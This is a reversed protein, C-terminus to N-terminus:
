IKQLAEVVQPFDMFHSAKVLVADGKKVFSLLKETMADREEFWFVAKEPALLRVEEALNRMLEGACFVADIGTDSLHTGVSRHLAAEEEGLEGMDGLVAIKRQKALDLTDLAERMSVPNANYCDDIITLSETHILNSRGSITRYNGIGRAIEEPTLGLLTGVAAAALANYINHRGPVRITTKLSEGGPLRLEMATGDLGLSEAKEAFVPDTPDTGFLLPKKGNVDSITCLKADDGNLVATGNERLHHFIETKARLVGDRDGLFELHCDGINTIVAIDPKAIEALRDMEGFDSIGMELVAVETEETVRFITLPLGIENNFNGATALVKYKESLVAAVTEKTSTKGVSGTIGVVTLDLGARYYAAIDKLAQETSKVLILPGTVRGPMKEVVAAAAGNSLVQEVFDHGDVRKGVIALFLNGPEVKRSDIVVGTVEGEPLTKGDVSLLTGHCAEAINQLTLNKM